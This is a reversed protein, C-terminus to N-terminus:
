FFITQLNWKPPYQFVHCKTVGDNLQKLLTEIQLFTSLSSKNLFSDLNEARGYESRSFIDIICQNVVSRHQWVWLLGFRVVEFNANRTWNFDQQKFLNIWYFLLRSKKRGNADQYHSIAFGGINKDVRTVSLLKEWCSNAQVRGDFDWDAVKQSQLITAFIEIKQVTPIRICPFPWLISM